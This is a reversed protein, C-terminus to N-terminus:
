AKDKSRKDLARGYFWSVIGIAILTIEVLFTHDQGAFLYYLVAFILCVIWVKRLFAGPKKKRGSNNVNDAM